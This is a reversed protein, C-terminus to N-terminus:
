GGISNYSCLTTLFKIKCVLKQAQEPIVHSALYENIMQKFLGDGMLRYIADEDM